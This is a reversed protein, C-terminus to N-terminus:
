SRTRTVLYAIATGVLLDFATSLTVYRLSNAISPVVIDHGLAARVHDLTLGSPLVTGYWDRSLALLLVCVNPLAAVGVIGALIAAVLLAPAPRLRRPRQSRAGKTGGIRHAGAYSVLRRGLAYLVVTAVLVVVVLAYVFPNRGLDKLGSFIQVSTVRQFDCMLP